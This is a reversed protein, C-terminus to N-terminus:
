PAARFRSLGPRGDAYWLALALGLLSVELLVIWAGRASRVVSLFEVALEVLHATTNEPAVVDGSTLPWLFLWARDDAGLVLPYFADAPLHLLYGVGFALGEEPLGRRRRWGYVALCSPAAFLLSHGLSVGSPLVGLAWGLPKDLLDPLQSGLLVFAAAGATPPEWGCRRALLSYALYGIALHDWPWM